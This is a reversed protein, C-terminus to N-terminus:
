TLRMGGGAGTPLALEFERGQGSCRPPGQGGPEVEVPSHPGQAEPSFSSTDQHPALAEGAGVLAASGLMPPPIRVQRPPVSSGPVGASRSTVTSVHTHASHGRRHPPDLELAWPQGQIRRRRRSTLRASGLAPALPLAQRPAPGRAAAGDDDGDGGHSPM